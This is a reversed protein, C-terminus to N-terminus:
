GGGSGAERWRAGAYKLELEEAARRFQELAAAQWYTGRLWEAYVLDATIRAAAYAAAAYTSSDLDSEARVCLATMLDEGIERRVASPWGALYASPHVPADADQAIEDLCGIKTWSLMKASDLEGAAGFRTEANLLPQSLMISDVIVLIAEAASDACSGLGAARCARRAEDLAFVQLLHERFLPITM